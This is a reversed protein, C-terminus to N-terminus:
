SLKIDEKSHNVEEYVKILYFKSAEEFSINCSGM